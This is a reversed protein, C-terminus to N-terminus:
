NCTNGDTVSEKLSHLRTPPYTAWSYLGKQRITPMTRKPKPQYLLKPQKDVAQKLLQWDKHLQQAQGHYVVKLMWTYLARSRSEPVGEDNLCALLAAQRLQVPFLERTLLATWRRLVARQSRRGKLPLTQWFAYGGPLHVLEKILLALVTKASTTLPSM